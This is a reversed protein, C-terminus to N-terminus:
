DRHITHQEEIYQGIAKTKMIEPDLDIDLKNVKNKWSILKEGSIEKEKLLYHAFDEVLNQNDKLWNTSNEMAKTLIEEEEEELAEKKKESWIGAENIDTYSINFVKGLGSELLMHRLIKRASKLDGVGGTTYEGFFITESAIGALAMEIKGILNKKNFTFLGEENQWNVAGLAHARPRVTVRNVNLKNKWAVLAHGAEHIATKYREEDKLIMSSDAAGWFIEDCAKLLNDVTIKTERQQASLIAGRNVAEAIDAASFSASAHALISLDINEEVSKLSLHAQWIDKRYQVNPLSLYISEGLRGSRIAAPDPKIRRHTAGIVLIGDSATFGDLQALFSNLIKQKELNLGIAEAPDNILVDIEDMFLICPANKRAEDFVLTINNSDNVLKSTEVIFMPIGVNKMLHKAFHTKGTGPEGMLLIGKPVKAGLDQYIHPHNFYDSLKVLLENVENYGAFGPIKEESEVRQLLNETRKTDAFAKNTTSIYHFVNQWSYEESRECWKAIEIIEKPTKVSQAIRFALDNDKFHQKSIELKHSFPMENLNLVMDFNSLIKEGIDAINEVIWIQASQKHSEFNNIINLNEHLLEPVNDFILINNEDSIIKYAVSLEPLITHLETKIREKLNYINLSHGNKGSHYLISKVLSSKGSGKLGYVLISAPSNKIAKMLKNIEEGKYSWQELSLLENEYKFGFPSAFFHLLDEQNNIEKELLANLNPFLKVHKLIKSIDLKESEKALGDIPSYIQSKILISDEYFLKLIADKELDFARGWVNFLEKYNMEKLAMNWLNNYGNHGVMLEYYTWNNIEQDSLGLVEGITNINIILHVDQKPRDKEWNKWKNKSYELTKLIEEKPTVKFWQEWIYNTHTTSETYAQSPSASDLLTGYSTIIDTYQCFTPASWVRDIEWKKVQEKNFFLPLNKVMELLDNSNERRGAACRERFIETVVEIAGIYGLVYWSTIHEYPNGTRNLDRALDELIKKSIFLPREGKELPLRYQKNETLTNTSLNTM